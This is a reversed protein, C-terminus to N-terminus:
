PEDVLVAHVPGPQSELDLGFALLRRGDVIRTERDHLRSFGLDAYLRHAAVMEPGSNMVVRVAGRARALGIVHAVLLRGIGLRRSAPPVALLRFDFEGPGALGGIHGGPRATAVTGLLTGAADVAVWVEHEGARGPVDRINARYEASLEYDAGYAAESLASAAEYEAPEILRITVDVLLAM